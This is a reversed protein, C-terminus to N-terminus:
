SLPYSFPSSRSWYAPALGGLILGQLLQNLGSVRTLHRGPVMLSTSSSMAPYHFAGGLSRAFLILYIHWVEVIGAAFLCLLVGTAAAIATDAVIMILRRNWRDVLAGVFPGLLIQPLLAVLSSTALITAFGTRRTLWWVLAFQALASGVLSFAQGTWIIFFRPAWGEPEAQAPSAGAIEENM